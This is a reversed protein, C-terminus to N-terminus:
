RLVTAGLAIMLIGLLADIVGAARFLVPRATIWVIQQRLKWPYLIYIMGKIIAIYAVVVLVRRYSSPHSRAVLFLGYPFLTLIGGLARCPLLNGMWFWTLPICGLVVFPLLYKYPNIIDIDMMYVAFGAWVWAIASLVYGSVVSRPFANLARSADSPRLVIFGGFLLCVFGMTYSWCSLPM